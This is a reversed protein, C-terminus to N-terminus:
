GRNETRPKECCLLLGCSIFSADAHFVFTGGGGSWVFRPRDRLSGQFQDLLRLPCRADRFVLDGCVFLAVPIEQRGRLQVFIFEQGGEPSHRLPRLFQCLRSAVQGTRRSLLARLRHMELAVWKAEGYKPLSSLPRDSRVADFTAVPRVADGPVAEPFVILLVAPDMVHRLLTPDVEYVEGFCKSNGAPMEGASWFLYVYAIHEVPATLSVLDDVHM